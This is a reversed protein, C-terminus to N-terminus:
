PVPRFGTQFRGSASLGVPGIRILWGTGTGVYETPGLDVAAPIKTGNRQGSLPVATDLLFPRAFGPLAYTGPIFYILFVEGSCKGVM